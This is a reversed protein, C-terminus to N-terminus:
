INSLQRQLAVGAWKQVQQIILYSAGSLGVVKAAGPLITSTVVCNPPVLLAGAYAVGDVPLVPLTTDVFQIICGTPCYFSAVSWGAPITIASLAASSIAQRMLAVPRIIDLPIAKNDETSFPYLQNSSNTAM